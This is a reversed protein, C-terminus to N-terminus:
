LQSEAVPRERLSGPLAGKGPLMTAGVMRVTFLAM